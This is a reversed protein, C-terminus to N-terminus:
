QEVFVIANPVTRGPGVKYKGNYYLGSSGGADLNLAYESGLSMMVSALDVISANSVHVVYLTMGKLGFAARTAKSKQKSDLSQQEAVNQSNVVLRPSHNIGSYFDFTSGSIDYWHNFYRWNGVSDFAVLPEWEWSGNERNIARGLRPNFIKYIFTNIQGNCTSYDPPCFYTGNVGAIGGFRKVYDGVSLTPCQDLCETDAATDTIVKVKGPGLEFQMVHGSFTGRDTVFNSTYYRSHTTSASVSPAATPAPTPKPTPKPTAKATAKPTPTPTPAPTPEPTPTPTPTAALAEKILRQQEALQAAQTQEKAIRTAQLGRISSAYSFERRQLEEAQKAQSVQLSGLLVVTGLLLLSPISYLVLRSTSTVTFLPTLLFKM